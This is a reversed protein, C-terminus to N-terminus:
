TFNEAWSLADAKKLQQGSRRLNAFEAAVPDRNLTAVAVVLDEICYFACIKKEMKQHRMVIDDFGDPHGAFRISYGCQVTWYFPVTAVGLEEIRGLISLAAQQGLYMAVGWHGSSVRQNKYLSLPFSAIDGAAWIGPVSTAMNSDVLIRKNTDINLGQVGEYLESNAVVGVAVIVLDAPIDESNKLKVNQVIGNPGEFEVVEDLMRFKVGREEHIRMVVKGIKEGLAKRFPSSDRGVVTVKAVKDVLLGAVEMGIFSSGVVVVNLGETGVMDWVKRMDKYSRLGTVGQLKEGPVGLERPRSGVAILLNTYPLKEGEKTTVTKESPEISVVDTNVMVRIDAEDYWTPDRLQIEKHEVSIVKSLRPRDYPLSDEATVLCIDGSFGEERLTKVTSFGAAGGGLVLVKLDSQLRKCVPKM